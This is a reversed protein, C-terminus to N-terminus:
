GDMLKITAEYLPFLLEIGKPAVLHLGLGTLEYYKKNGGLVQTIIGTEQMRDFVRNFTTAPMISSDAIEHKRLLRPPSEQRAQIIKKLIWIYRCRTDILFRNDLEVKENAM